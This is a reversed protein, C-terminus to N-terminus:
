RRRIAIVLASGAAALALAFGLGPSKKNSPAEAPTGGAGGSGAGSSPSKTSSVEATSTPTSSNSQTANTPPASSSSPSPSGFPGAPILLGAPKGASGYLLQYDGAASTSNVQIGIKLTKGAPIEVGKLPVTSVAESVVAGSTAAAASVSYSTTGVYKTSDIYFNFQVALRPAAAPTGSYPVSLFLRFVGDAVATVKEDLVVTGWVLEPSDKLSTPTNGLARSKDATGAPASLSLAGEGLFVGLAKTGLASLDPPSNIAFHIGSPHARGHHLFINVPTSPENAAASAWVGLELSLVDGKKIETSPKAGGLTIKTPSSGLALPVTGDANRPALGTSLTVVDSTGKLLTLEVTKLVVAQSASLWVNAGIGSEFKFTFPATIRGLVLPCTLVPTTTSAAGCDTGETGLVSASKSPQDAPLSTSLGTSGATPGEVVFLGIMPWPPSYAGADFGALLTAGVLLSITALGLLNRQLPMPRTM